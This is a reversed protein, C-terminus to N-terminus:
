LSIVGMEESSAVEEIKFSKDERLVVYLCLRANCGGKKLTAKGGHSVPTLSLTTYACLIPPWFYWQQHYALVFRRKVHHLYHGAKLM